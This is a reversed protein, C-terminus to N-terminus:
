FKAKAKSIPWGDLWEKLHNRIYDAGVARINTGAAKAVAIDNALTTALEKKEINDHLKGDKKLQGVRSVIFEKSSVRKTPEKSNIRKAPAEGPKSAPEKVASAAKAAKELLSSLVDKLWPPSAMGTSVDITHQLRRGAEAREILKKRLAPAKASLDKFVERQEPSLAELPVPLFRPPPARRPRKRRSKSSKRKAKAVPNGETTAQNSRGRNRVV